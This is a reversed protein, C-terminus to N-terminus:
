KIAHVEINGNSMAVKLYKDGEEIVVVAVFGCLEEVVAAVIKCVNLLVVVIGYKMWSSMDLEFVPPSAESTPLCVWFLTFHV